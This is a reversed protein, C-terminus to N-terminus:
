YVQIRTVNLVDAPQTFPSATYDIFKILGKNRAFWQEVRYVEQPISGTIFVYSIRVKIVDPYTTGSVTAPVAKELITGQIKGAVTVGSITGALATEFVTGAPVNDKLFVYEVAAPNDFGFVNLSSPYYEYYVGSAKRYYSTDSSVADTNKFLSYPPNSGFTRTAGTSLVFLTDNPSNGEYLYTWHSNATTPFYDGTVIFNVEAKTCVNKNITVSGKMSDIGCTAKWTYTGVPLNVTFAGTAGCNAPETAYFTSIQGSKNAVSVSIPTTSTGGGCGSKSWLMVQGSDTVPPNQVSGNKFSATFKGDTILRSTNTKNLAKGNFTGTVGNADISTITISFSDVAAIDTQYFTAGSRTYDFSCLPTKYTGPKLDVAFVQLTIKDLGDASKGEITLFKTASVTDIYATDVPGKFQVGGEKFEWQATSGAAGNGKEVSYEKQCAILLFITSFVALLPKFYKM